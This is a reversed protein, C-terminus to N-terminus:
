DCPRRFQPAELLLTRGAITVITFRCHAMAVSCIELVEHPVIVFAVELYKVSVLSASNEESDDPDTMQVVGDLKLKAYIFGPITSKASNKLLPGELHSRSTGILVKAPTDTACVLGVEAFHRNPDLM